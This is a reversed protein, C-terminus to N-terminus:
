AAEDAETWGLRQKWFREFVETTCAISGALCALHYVANVREKLDVRLDVRQAAEPRLSVFFVVGLVFLWPRHKMPRGSGSAVPASNVPARRALGNHCRLPNPCKSKM